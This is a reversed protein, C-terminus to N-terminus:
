LYPRELICVLRLRLQYGPPTTPIEVECAHDYHAVELTYSSPYARYIMGAAYMIQAAVRSKHSSSDCHDRITSQPM